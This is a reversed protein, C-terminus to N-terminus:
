NRKENFFVKPHTFLVYIQKNARSCFTQADTHVYKSKYVCLLSNPALTYTRAHVCHKWKNDRWLVLSDSFFFDRTKVLFLWVCHSFTDMGVSHINQIGLVDMEIYLGRINTISESSLIKCAFSIVSVARHVSVFLFGLNNFLFM